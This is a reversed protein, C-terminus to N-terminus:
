SRLHHPLPPSSFSCPFSTQIFLLTPTSPTFLLVLLCLLPSLCSVFVCSAGGLSLVCGLRLPRLGVAAHHLDVAFLVRSLVSPHRMCYLIAMRDPKSKIQDSKIQNCSTQDNSVM